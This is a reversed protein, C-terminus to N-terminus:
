IFIFLYLYVCVYLCISFVYVHMGVSRWTRYSFPKTLQTTLQMKYFYILYFILIVENYFLRKHDKKNTMPTTVYVELDKAFLM